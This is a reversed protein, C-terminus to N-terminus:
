NGNCAPAAQIAALFGHRASSSLHLVNLDVSVLPRVGLLFGVAVSLFPSAILPLSAYVTSIFECTGWGVDHGYSTATLFPHFVIVDMITSTM